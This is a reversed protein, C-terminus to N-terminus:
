YIIADIIGGFFEPNIYYLDGDVYPELRITITKANTLDVSFEKMTGTKTIKKNLVLEGDLYIYLQLEYKTYNVNSQQTKLGISGELTTFGYGSLELTDSFNGYIINGAYDEGNITCVGNHITRYYSTIPLGLTNETVTLLKYADILTIAQSKPSAVYSAYINVDNTVNEYSRSWGNFIYGDPPTVEPPTASDGYSVQETKLLTGGADYFRVTLWERQYIAKVITGQKINSFDKDWGRFILDGRREPMPPEVAASGEAVNQVSIMSYGDYDVFKVMYYEVPVPTPEKEIPKQTETSSATTSAAVVEFYRPVTVDTVSTVETTSREINEIDVVANTRDNVTPTFLLGESVASCAALFLCVAAVLLVYFKKM